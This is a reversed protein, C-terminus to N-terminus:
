SGVNEYKGLFSGPIRLHPNFNMSAFFTEELDKSALIWELFDRARQDNLCFDVFHRNVAIYM